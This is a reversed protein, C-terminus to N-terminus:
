PHFTVGFSVTRGLKFLRQELNGQTFLFEDDLLNEFAVKLSVSDWRKSVVVDIQNRGEQIIDPLGLSGVDIIRDGFFSWLMRTSFDNMRFEAMANFLNKSTGALPRVLSTQVQGATQDLTVESDVFTYNAGVLFHETILKRGEIEFGTNNASDANDYSTRLQATPQVVREIPNDFYKYFFSASVVEEAGPFWEWRADVNQILSQDLDPNGVTARGGVVDTFEFPAVERFEPRNVTQSYSVRVNQDYALAYVANVGPFINTEDLESSVVQTSGGVDRIFPDFTDVTQKFSEVRAGGVLRFKATLPLDIMGYFSALEQKGDYADTPRTEEKLQWAPGINQAVFLDEAPQSLDLSAAGSRPTFRLRRSEFARDRDLYGGGVEIQTGLGGWQELVVSYNAQVEISDDRQDNFQRLGSQSEDALVFADRAPDFEYLTERLDPEERDAYSFAAKWDVRSNSAGSFLHDGGVHHSRIQEEIFYLRRNFLDTDADSNFGTFERAQDTGLHTFFNDFSLRHNPTFQYSLNGVGGLTREYSSIDFDYPGNFVDIAGGEEVNFYTQTEDTFSSSQGHRITAVVGLKDFRGGFLGTYSQDMPHDKGVPDWVNDFSRGLDTLESTLFGIEDDTFRGGQIVKRDPFGTPLARTGDDFGTWERGGSPYSLGTTGTTLTNWGGSTGVEWSTEVPMKLPIIEVLGGAFQSPKDPTYTKSVQVSDILATPFLNLPVVRRDPETTPLTVGNLTTNSYREGLGRVFVSGGGVVSVGTVRSMADAANSDDNASMEVAGINDQVVPARMRLMMQAAATSSEAELSPASVTAQEAFVNSALSVQVTTLEGATVELSVMQEAYGAMVVKLEYMAAPVQFRYKGDLDTYEIQSVTGTLEVPVGPLTIANAEDIVTGAIIGLDQAQSPAAVLLLASLAWIWTTRQM